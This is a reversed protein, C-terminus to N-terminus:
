NGTAANMSAAGSKIHPSQIVVSVHCIKHFSLLNDLRLFSKHAIDHDSSWHWYKPLLLSENLINHDRFVWLKSMARELFM